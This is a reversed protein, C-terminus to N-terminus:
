PLSAASGPLEAIVFTGLGRPRQKTDQDPEPQVKPEKRKEETDVSFLMFHDFSHRRFYRHKLFDFYLEANKPLWLEENQRPFKVPGYDVSWHQSFLQIEPIPRV